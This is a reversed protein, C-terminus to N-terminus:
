LDKGPSGPGAKWLSKCFGDLDVELVNINKYQFFSHEIPDYHLIVAWDKGHFTVSEKLRRYLARINWDSFSYGLFLTSKKDLNNVVPSPVMGQGSGSRHLFTVYDEDSLVISDHGEELSGHIKYLIVIPKFTAPVSFTDVSKPVMSGMFQQYRQPSYGLYQQMTPSCEPFVKRDNKDVSLRIYAAGCDDLAKEMLNDYNTTIILFPDLDQNALAKELYAKAARAILKHTLTVSEVNKFMGQLTQRTDDEVNYQFYSAVTLLPPSTPAVATAAAATRCMQTLQGAMVQHISSKLRSAPSEFWDFSALHAFAEALQSASPAAPGNKVLEYVEERTPPRVSEHHLKWAVMFAVELFERAMSGAPIELAQCAEDVMSKLGAQDPPLPRGAEVAAAASRAQLSAGAGLFPVLQQKDAFLLEALKPYPIYPPKDPYFVPM